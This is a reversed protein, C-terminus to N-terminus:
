GIKKNDYHSWVSPDTFVFLLLYCELTNEDAQNVAESLELLYAYFEYIGKVLLVDTMIIM